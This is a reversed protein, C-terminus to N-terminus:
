INEALIKEFADFDTYLHANFGYMLAAEVHGGDDDFYLVDSKDTDLVDAIHDYFATEPKKSGVVASPFVDEFWTRMGRQDLLNQSRYKENNTAFYSPIGKEKLARIVPLFREDLPAKEPDFWADLFADTGKTWGWAPLVRELEEKLDLQGILCKQFENLFFPNSVEDPIGHDRARRLRFSEGTVVMGDGDFIVAKSQMSQTVTM